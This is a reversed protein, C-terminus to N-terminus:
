KFLASVSREEYIRLMAEGIVHSVSVQEINDCNKVAETAPISDTIVLNELPSDVVKSVAGGSFIGHVIYAHVSKAGGDKLAQAANCLTGASDVMDDILVCEKGEVEGIVNMVESVGAKERRKDIIALDASM